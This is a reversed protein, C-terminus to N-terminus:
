QRGASKYEADEIYYLCGNSGRLMREMNDEDIPADCVYEGTYENYNYNSCRECDM